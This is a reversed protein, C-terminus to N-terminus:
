GKPTEWVARLNEARRQRLEPDVPRDLMEETPPYTGQPGDDPHMPRAESGRNM